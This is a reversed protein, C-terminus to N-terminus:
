HIESAPNLLVPLPAPESRAPASVAQLFEGLALMEEATMGLPQILDDVVPFFPDYKHQYQPYNANRGKTMGANYM